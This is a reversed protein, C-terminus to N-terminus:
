SDESSVSIDAMSGTIHVQFIASWGSQINRRRLEACSIFSWMDTRYGDLITNISEQNEHM